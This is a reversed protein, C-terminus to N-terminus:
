DNVSRTRLSRRFDRADEPTVGIRKLNSKLAGPDIIKLDKFEPIPENHQKYWNPTYMGGRKDMKEALKVSVPTLTHRCHYGGCSTFVSGSKGKWAYLDLEELQQRTFVRGANHACMPRTGAKISGAWVFNTIGAEEAKKMNMTRYSEMLGDQAYVKAYSALSRGRVDVLGTVHNRIQKVLEDYSVGALVADQISQAVAAQTQLSYAQLGTLVQNQLSRVMDKDITSFPAPVDIDAFLDAVVAKIKGIDKAYRKIEKGYTEEFVGALQAHIAISQKLTWKPGKITGDPLVSINGAMRVIKNELTTLTKDLDHEFKISINDLAIEAGRNGKNIDGITAM